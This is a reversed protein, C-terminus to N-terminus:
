IRAQTQRRRHSRPLAGTRSGSFGLERFLYGSISFPDVSAVSRVRGVGRTATPSNIKQSADPVDFGLAVNTVSVDM